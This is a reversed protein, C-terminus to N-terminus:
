FIPTRERAFKNATKFKNKPSITPMKTVNTKNSKGSCNVTPPM